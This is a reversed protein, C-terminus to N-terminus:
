VIVETPPSGGTRSRCLKGKECYHIESFQNELSNPVARLPPLFVGQMLSAGGCFSVKEVVIKVTM